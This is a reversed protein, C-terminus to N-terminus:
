GRDDSFNGHTAEGTISAVDAPENGAEAAPTAAETGASPAEEIAREDAPGGPKDPGNPGPASATPTNGTRGANLKAPIRPTAGPDGLGTERAFRLGIMAAADRMALVAARALAEDAGFMGADGAKGYASFPWNAIEKGEADFFRLRYRIWVTYADTRSQAPLAFEFADVSAEILADADTATVDTDPGVEVVEEFMSEFLHNFLIKNASGLSISWKQGGLVEEEHRYNEMEASYRVAVKLPLQVLLPDPLGPDELAVQSACGSFALAALLLAAIASSRGTM